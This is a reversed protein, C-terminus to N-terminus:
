TSEYRDYRVIRTGSGSASGALATGLSVGFTIFLFIPIWTAMALNGGIGATQAGRGIAAVTSGVSNSPMTAPASVTAMQMGLGMRINNLTGIYSPGAASALLYVMVIM